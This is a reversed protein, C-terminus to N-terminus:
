YRVRLFKLGVSIHHTDLQQKNYHTAVPAIITDFIAKELELTLKKGDHVLRQKWPTNLLEPQLLVPICKSVLCSHSTQRLVDVDHVYAISPYDLVLTKEEACHLSSSVIDNLTVFFEQYNLLPFSEEAEDMRFHDLVKPM